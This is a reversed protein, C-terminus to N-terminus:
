KFSAFEPKLYMRFAFNFLLFLEILLFSRLCSTGKMSDNSMMCYMVRTDKNWINLTHKSKPFEWEVWFEPFALFMYSIHDFDVIFVGSCRSCIKIITVINENIIKFLYIDVPCTQSSELWM